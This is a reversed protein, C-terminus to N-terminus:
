HISRFPFWLPAAPLPNGPLKYINWLYLEDGVTTQGPQLLDAATSILVYHRSFTLAMSDAIAGVSPFYIYEDTAVAYRRAQGSCVFGVHFETGSRTASPDTCGALEDTLRAFTHEKLDYIYIQDIGTDHSDGALDATSQFAVLRAQDTLAPHRSPGAGSTIPLTLGTKQESIWIQAIGTDHGDIPDDTSDYTTIDGNISVSANRSDGHGSSVQSFTGNTSRIVRRIAATGTGAVDTTCEFVITRGIADVGPNECTGTPDSTVQSVTSPTHWRMIQRGPFGPVVSDWVVTGRNKSLTAHQDDGGLGIPTPVYTKTHQDAPIITAVHGAPTGAAVAFNTALNTLRPAATDGITTLRSLPPTQRHHAAAPRALAAAFLLLAALRQDM